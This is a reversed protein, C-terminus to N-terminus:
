YAERGCEQVDVYPTSLMHPCFTSGVVYASDTDFSVIDLGPCSLEKKLRPVV